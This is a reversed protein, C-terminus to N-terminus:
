KHIRLEDTGEISSMDQPTLFVYQKNPKKSAENLLLKTLYMRNVQDQIYNIIFSFIIM